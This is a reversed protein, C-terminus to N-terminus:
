GLKSMQSLLETVRFLTNLSIVCYDAMLESACLSGIFSFSIKHTNVCRPGRRIVYLQITCKYVSEQGTMESDKLLRCEHFSM